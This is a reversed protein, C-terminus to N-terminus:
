YPLKIAPKSSTRRLVLRYTSKPGIQTLTKADKSLLFKLTDPKKLKGAPGELWTVTVGTKSQKFTGQIGVMMDIIACYKGQMIFKRIQGPPTTKPDQAVVKTSGPSMTLVDYTGDLKTQGFASALSSVTLFAVSMSKMM